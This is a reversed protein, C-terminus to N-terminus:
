RSMKNELEENDILCKDFCQEILSLSKEQKTTDNSTNWVVGKIFNKNDEEELKTYDISFDGFRILKENMLEVYERMFERLTRSNGERFPHIYYLEIYNTGLFKILGQRTYIERAQKKMLNLRENLCDYIYAPDCYIRIGEEGVEENAKNTFEKRLEGAFPYLDSFLYKHINLYHNLTLDRRFPIEGQILRALKYTVLVKELKLLEEKDTINKNNILISTGPYCYISQNLENIVKNKM